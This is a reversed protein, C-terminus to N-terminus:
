SASILEDLKKLVEEVHGDLKVNKWEHLIEGEPSIIFTNRLTGETEKGYMRKKGWAGYEKIVKADKDSLLIIELNYKEAFKKHSEVTDKSIGIVVSNRKKFEDIKESFSVAEKTCGSTMDKPYFYLVVWKGKYDSLSVEKGNQDPLTFDPAKKSM